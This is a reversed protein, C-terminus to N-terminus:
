ICGWGFGVGIGVSAGSGVNDVGVGDDVVWIVSDKGFV